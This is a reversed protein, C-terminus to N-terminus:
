LDTPVAAPPSRRASRRPGTLFYKLAFGAKRAMLPAGCNVCNIEPEDPAPPLEIEIVKYSSGCGDCRGSVPEAETM